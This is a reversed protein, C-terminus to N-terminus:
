LLHLRNFFNCFHYSTKAPTPQDSSEVRDRKLNSSQSCKKKIDRIETVKKKFKLVFRETLRSM